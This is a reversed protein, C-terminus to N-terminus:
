KDIRLNQIPEKDFKHLSSIRSAHIKMLVYWQGDSVKNFQVDILPDFFGAFTNNVVSFSVLM